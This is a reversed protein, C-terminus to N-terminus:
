AAQYEKWGEPTFYESAAQLEKRYNVFNYTYATTTAQTTWQLLEATSVVPESLAHLQTIKGDSSTAFYVPTPRHTVMYGIIAVLGINILIMFLLALVVRRYNDRYFNNRLKVVELADEAPM